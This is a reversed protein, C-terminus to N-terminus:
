TAGLAAGLLALPCCRPADDQKGRRPDFPIAGCRVFFLISNEGKQIVRRDFCEIGGHDTDDAVGLERAAGGSVDTITMERTCLDDGNVM